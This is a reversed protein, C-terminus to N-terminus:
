VRICARQVSGFDCSSPKVMARWCVTLTSTRKGADLHFPEYGPTPREGTKRPHRMGANRAVRGCLPVESM